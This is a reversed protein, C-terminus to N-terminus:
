DMLEGVLRTLRETQRYAMELKGKIQEPPLVAEPSRRPPQLLTQIQLQLASLPTRLEHSAVSLFEDRARIADVAERYLLERELQTHKRETIDRAISAIRDAGIRILQLSVEIPSASPDKRRFQTELLIHPQSGDLLPALIDRLGSGDHEAMFDAPSLRLLEDRSYGLLVSAGHNVYLIRWSTPEFFMVADPEADLTS